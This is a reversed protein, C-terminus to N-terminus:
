KRQNKKTWKMLRDKRRKHPGMSFSFLCDREEALMAMSLRLEEIAVDLGDPDALNVEIHDHARYYEDEIWAMWAGERIHMTVKFISRKTSQGFYVHDKLDKAAEGFIHEMMHYAHM